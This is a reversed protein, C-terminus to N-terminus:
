VHSVMYSEGVGLTGYSVWKVYMREDNVKIDWANEGNVTIGASKLEQQVITKVRGSFLSYLANKIFLYCAIIWYIVNAM